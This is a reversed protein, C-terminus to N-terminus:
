EGAAVAEVVPEAEEPAPSSASPRKYSWTRMDDRIRVGQAALEERIADATAYDKAVKADARLNVQVTIAAADLADPIEGYLEYPGDKRLPTSAKGKRKRSGAKSAKPTPRPAASPPNAILEKISVLRKKFHAEDGADCLKVLSRKNKVGSWTAQDCGWTAAIEPMAPPPRNADDVQMMPRM